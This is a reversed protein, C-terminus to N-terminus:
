RNFTTTFQLSPGKILLTYVGPTLRLLERGISLKSQGAPLAYPLRVVERGQMDRVQVEIVQPTLVYIDAYSDAEVPVPGFSTVQSRDQVFAVEKVESFSYQGDLDVQKLRYNLKNAMEGIGRDRYQYNQVQDGGAGLVSRIPTWEMGDISRQVEFYHHNVERSTAWHLVVDNGEPFASFNLWEVPLVNPNFFWTLGNDSFFINASTVVLHNSFPAIFGAGGTQAVAFGTASNDFDVVIDASATLGAYVLNFTYDDATGETEDLGAMAFRLGAVDDHGLSRQAEGSFTGQQMVAETNAYGLAAGVSFDPNAPFLDAGPLDSLLNSYTSADVTGAITFPDNDSMKFFNLPIDDGRADDASGIIGDTGTAINFVANTGEVAKTYNRDNGTLGSETAANVHALGMTHGLEHLFVSEFDYQGAPVNGAQINGTTSTLTNMVLIANQVPTEMLAAYSSTPDIGVTITLNGGVGVYGFVHTIRDTNGSGAFIFAFGHSSNIPTLALLGLTIATIWSFYLARRM